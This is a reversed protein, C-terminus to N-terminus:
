RFTVPLAALMDSLIVIHSMEETIVVDVAERASQNVLSGSIGLYVLIAEKENEIARQLVKVMNGSNILEEASSRSANEGRSRSWVLSRLFANVSHDGSDSDESIRLAEMGLSEFRQRHAEEMIALKRFIDRMEKDQAMGAAADYFSGAEHEMAMALNFVEATRVADIGSLVSMREDIGRGSSGGLRGGLRGDREGM